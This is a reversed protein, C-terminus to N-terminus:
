NRGEAKAIATRAADVERLGVGTYRDSIALLGKLADLLEPAAAILLANAERETHVHNTWKCDAVMVGTADFVQDDPHISINTKWPGATHATM